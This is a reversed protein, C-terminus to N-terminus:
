LKVDSSFVEGCVSAFPLKGDIKVQVFRVDCCFTKGSDCILLVNKFWIQIQIGQKSKIDLLTIAVCVLM